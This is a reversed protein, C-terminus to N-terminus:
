IFGFPRVDHTGKLVFCLTCDVVTEGYVEVSYAIVCVCVSDYYVCLSVFLKVALSRQDSEARGVAFCRNLLTGGM